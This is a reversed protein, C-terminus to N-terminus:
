CRGDRGVAGLAHAAGIGYRDLLQCTKMYLEDLFNIVETEMKNIVDRNRPIRRVLIMRMEQPFRPDYDGFDCWKRGTCAMAWQMQYIYKTPIQGGLLLELHTAAHPCKFEVLGDEGVLGDPSAGAMAITPHPVFGVEDIVSNTLRSYAEMAESELMLGREMPKSHYHEAENNTLREILLEAMYNARSASPGSKTTAMVDAIRSGTVKGLRAQRWEASGQIGLRAGSWKTENPFAESIKL